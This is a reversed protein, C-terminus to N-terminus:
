CNILIGISFFDYWESVARRWRTKGISTADEGETVKSVLERRAPQM